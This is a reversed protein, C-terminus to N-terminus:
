KGGLWTLEETTFAAAAQQVYPKSCCGCYEGMGCEKFRKWSSSAWAMVKSAYSNSPKPIPLDKGVFAYANLLGEVQAALMINEQQLTTLSERLLRVEEPVVQLAWKDVPEGLDYEEQTLGAYGPGMGDRAFITGEPKPNLEVGLAEAQRIANNFMGTAYTSRGDAYRRAMWWIDSIIKKLQHNELEEPTM